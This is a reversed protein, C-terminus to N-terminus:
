VVSKRDPLDATWARAQTSVWRTRYMKSQPSPTVEYYSSADGSRPYVRIKNASYGDSYVDRTPLQVIDGYTESHSVCKANTLSYLTTWRETDPDFRHVGYWDTAYLKGNAALELAHGGRNPLDYRRVETLSLSAADYTFKLLNTFGIAWLCERSEDWEVGHCFALGNANRYTGDGRILQISGSTQSLSNGKVITGDPLLDISHGGDGGCPYTGTRLCVPTDGSTDVVAWDAAGAVLVTRGGNRVKIAATSVLSYGTKFRPDSDCRWEYVVANTGAESGKFVRFGRHSGAETAIVYGRDLLDPLGAARSAAAAGLLALLALIRRLPKM